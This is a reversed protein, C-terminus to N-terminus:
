QFAISEREKGKGGKRNDCPFYSTVCVALRERRARGGERGRKM